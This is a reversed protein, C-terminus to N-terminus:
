VYKDYEISRIEMWKFPSSQNEARGFPCPFKYNLKSISLSLFIIFKKPSIQSWMPFDM